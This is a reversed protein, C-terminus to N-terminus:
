SARPRRFNAQEIADDSPEGEGVLPGDPDKALAPAGADLDVAKGAADVFPAASTPSDDPPFELDLEFEFLRFRAKIAGSKALVDCLDRIDRPAPMVFARPKDQAAM